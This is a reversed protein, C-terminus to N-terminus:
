AYVVRSDKESKTIELICDASDKVGDVHTIVIVTKFYRKLSTLLRNCAEVGSEDLAGFGEDIIFMDTKPLSSVNILAVRIAISGIMKEMGSALEIIRRSDGYNIYVEMSDSEDDIELEVTFDVIGALINSIESNIVPMQSSVIIAPIGRRSFATSISEYNSMKQLLRQRLLNEEQLKELDSSVKGIKSALTMKESDLTSTKKTLSDIEMRISVVEANEDNRLAEELENMKKSYIELNKELSDINNDLKVLETTKTSIELNLKNYMEHLKTLKDVKDQINESKLEDLSISAKELKELSKTTKEQQPGVKTKVAYADKIFKCSPFKDGCPVDDLIKL